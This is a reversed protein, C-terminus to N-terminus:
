SNKTLACIAESDRPAYRRQLFVGNQVGREAYPLNKEFWVAMMM